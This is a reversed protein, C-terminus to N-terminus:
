AFQVDPVLDTDEGTNIKVRKLKKGGAEVDDFVVTAKLTAGERGPGPIRFYDEPDM